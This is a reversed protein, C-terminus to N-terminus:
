SPAQALLVLRERESVVVGGPKEVTVAFLVADRVPLKPDIPVIVEGGPTVDFVGGDVPKSDWDARTPDFIWLQYQEVTPDNAALGTFRMYGEQAASSWLVEGTVAADGGPGTAWDWRRLDEASALAECRESLGPLEPTTADGRDLVLLLVLLAAAALWGGVAGWSTAPRPATSHARQETMSPRAPRELGAAWARAARDLGVQVREPPAEVRDLSGLALAAVALEFAELDERSASSELSLQDAPDLGETVLGVALDLTAEDWGAFGASM